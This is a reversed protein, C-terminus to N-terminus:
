RGGHFPLSPDGPHALVKAAPLLGGSDRRLRQAAVYAVELIPLDSEFTVAQVTLFGRALLGIAQNGEGLVAECLLTVDRYAQGKSRLLSVLGVIDRNRTHRSPLGIVALRATPWPAAGPSTIRALSSLSRMM